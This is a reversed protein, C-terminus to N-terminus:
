NLFNKLMQFIQNRDFKEEEKISGWISKLDDLEM